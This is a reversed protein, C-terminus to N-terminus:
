RTWISEKAEEVIDEDLGLLQALAIADAQREGEDGVEFVAYDMSEALAALAANLDGSAPTLPIDRLGRVAFHRVGADRAIGALHTAIFALRERRRLGRLIAVLLAKGEHPTTTRAFEDILLLMRSARRTLLENLRVVERAFSSLLGGEEEQAGIGLWAISEFLACECYAAPVPIGFAALLAIFGCTRLAVTKGGMNPGTLVAVDHLELSIPEYSRGKAELDEQLPLYRAEQFRVVQAGAVRAPTCEYQLAFRAQALRVDLDALAAVLRELDAVCERVKNSIQRRVNEEAIAVAENAADRRRLAELASDDLELECLFYTPAERVIRIGRPLTQVADRMVIFEGGAIEERGLEQAIRQALRGRASEYEAQVRDAAARAAALEDDFKESLYFAFKGARGIELSAALVNLCDAVLAPQTRKAADLFRLLELLNADELVDGMSARSIAPLPDPSSRLVDRMADIREAGLTRALDAIEQSRLQADHEQGPRYPAVEAYARRGFESVAELQAHLWATQLASATTADLIDAFKM